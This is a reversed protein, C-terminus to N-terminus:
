GVRISEPSSPRSTAPPTIISRASSRIDPDIDAKKWASASASISRGGLPRLPSTFNAQDDRGSSSHNTNGNHHKGPPLQAPSRASAAAASPRYPSGAAHSHVPLGLQRRHKRSLTHSEQFRPPPRLPAHLNQKKAEFGEEQKAARKKKNKKRNRKRKKKPPGEDEDDDDGDDRAVRVDNSHEDTDPQGFSGASSAETGNPQQTRRKRKRKPKKEAQHGTSPSAGGHNISATGTDQAAASSSGLGADAIAM